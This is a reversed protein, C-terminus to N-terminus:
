SDSLLINQPKLDRHCVGNSHLYHLGIVIQKFFFRCVRESFPGSCHVYDFLEGGMIPEQSIYAVQIQKGSNKKWVAVEKFEYYKVINKHDLKQTAIFEQKVLSVLHADNLPNQLSFIKLAVDSGNEDKALKVKASFGSGLTAGILFNDISM